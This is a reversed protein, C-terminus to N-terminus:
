SEPTNRVPASLRAVLEAVAGDGSSGELAKLLERLERAVAAVAMKATGADLERALTYAIEALSGRTGTLEGMVAVDERVKSEVPGM